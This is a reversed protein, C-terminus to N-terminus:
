FNLPIEGENPQANLAEIESASTLHVAIRTLNLFPKNQTHTTPTPQSPWTLLLM